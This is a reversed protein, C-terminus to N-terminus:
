FYASYSISPLFMYNSAMYLITIGNETRYDYYSPNKRAYVNYVSVNIIRHGWKKEKKFNVGIDLRHTPEGRYSNRGGYSVLPTFDYPGPLNGVTESSEPYGFSPYKGTALTLADGTYYFWNASFSIKDNVMYNLVISMNHTRDYQFPYSIGNNINNFQRTSKSLTYSLWGSIPGSKKNILLELGYSTGKGNTEIKKQWDNGAFFSVGEKYEILGKLSKYYLENTIEIDAAPFTKTFGLAAIVSSQPPVNQTASVWLDTPLGAGPYTLLHQYQKMTCFSTKVSAHKAIKFNAALRPEVSKYWKKQVSFVSGHLGCQYKFWKSVSHEIQTYVNGQAANYLNSGYTQKSGLNDTIHFLGPSFFHYTLAGGFTLSLNHKWYYELNTKLIIDGVKSFYNYEYGELTDTSMNDIKFRYQTYVLSTNAFLSSNAIYNWRISGLHNGWKYDNTYEVDDGTEHIFYVDDGKYYSFLLQNKNDIVYKLKANIDYFGYGYNGGDFFEKTIAALKDHLSTRASVMFSIKNNVLPGEVMFKSVMIGLTANGSYKHMNGEKMRVDIVSSLRGNYKAPFAGSLLLTSKIADDNFVSFFGSYHSVNYLPADDLLILNQDPSGGRVYLSSNTEAGLTVGPMTMYARFINAEGFFSPLKKIDAMQIKALSMQMADAIDQTDVVLVEAINIGPKLKINIITDATLALESNFPAYGVFQVVMTTPKAKQIDISFFGFSNTVTGIKLQPIYVTAGIITEGTETDSVTGSLKVKQATIINIILCNFLIVILVRKM